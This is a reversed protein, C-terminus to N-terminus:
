RTMALEKGEHRRGMVAILAPALLFPIFSDLDGVSDQGAGDERGPM